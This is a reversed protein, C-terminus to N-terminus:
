ITKIIYNNIDLIVYQDQNLTQTNINNDIFLINYHNNSLQNLNNNEIYETIWSPTFLKAGVIYESNDIKIEIEKNDKENEKYHLEISLFRIDSKVVSSQHNDDNEYYTQDDLGLFKELTMFMPYFVNNYAKNYWIQIKAHIIFLVWIISTMFQKTDFDEYQYNSM